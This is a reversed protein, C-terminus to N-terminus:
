FVGTDEFPDRPGNLLVGPDKLLIEPNKLLVGPDKLLVEPDQTRHRALDSSMPKFLEAKAQLGSQFSKSTLPMLGSSDSPVTTEGLRGM